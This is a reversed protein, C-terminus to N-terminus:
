LGFGFFESRPDIAVFEFEVLAVIADVRQGSREFLARARGKLKFDLAGRKGLQNVGAARPEGQASSSGVLELLGEAFHSLRGGSVVIMSAVGFDLARSDLRF